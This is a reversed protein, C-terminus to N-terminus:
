PPTVETIFLTGADNVQLRWQKSDSPLVLGYAPNTITVDREFTPEILAGPIQDIGIVPIEWQQTETNWKLIDM